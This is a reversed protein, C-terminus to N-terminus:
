TKPGAWAFLIGTLMGCHSIIVPRCLQVVTIFKIYCLFPHILDKEVRHIEIKKGNLDCYVVELGWGLNNSLTHFAPINGKM